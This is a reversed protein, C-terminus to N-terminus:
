RCLASSRANDPSGQRDRCSRRSAGLLRGVFEGVEAESAAPMILRALRAADAPVESLDRGSGFSADIEGRIKEPLTQSARPYGKGHLSPVDQVSGVGTMM